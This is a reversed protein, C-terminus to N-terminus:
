LLICQNCQVGSGALVYVALLSNLNVTRSAGVTGGRLQLVTHPVRESRLQSGGDQTTNIVNV